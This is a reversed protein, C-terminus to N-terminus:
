ESKEQKGPWSKLSPWKSELDALRAAEQTQAHEQEELERMVEYEHQAQTM